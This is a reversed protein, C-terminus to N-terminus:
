EEDDGDDSVRGITKKAPKGGSSAKKKGKKPGISKEAPKDPKEDPTPQHVPPAADKPTPAPPPPENLPGSKNTAVDRFTTEAKKVGTEVLGAVEEATKRAWSGFDKLGAKVKAQREPDQVEKLLKEAEIRMDNGARKLDQQTKKLFSKLRDDWQSDSAM